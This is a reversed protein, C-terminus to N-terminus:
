LFELCNIKNISLNFRNEKFGLNIKFYLDYM